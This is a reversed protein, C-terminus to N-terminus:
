FGPSCLLPPSRPGFQVNWAESNAGETGKRCIRCNRKKTLKIEKPAKKLFFLGPTGPGVQGWGQSGEGRVLERFHARM